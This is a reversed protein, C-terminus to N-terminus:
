PMYFTVHLYSCFYNTLGFEDNEMGLEEQKNGSTGTTGSSVQSLFHIHHLCHNKKNKIKANYKYILTKPANGVVFQL